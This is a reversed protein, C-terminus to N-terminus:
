MGNVMQGFKQIPNIENTIQGATQGPNLEKQNAEPRRIPADNALRGAENKACTNGM